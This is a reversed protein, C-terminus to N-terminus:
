SDNEKKGDLKCQFIFREKNNLSNFYPEYSKDEKLLKDHIHNILEKENMKKENILIAEFLYDGLFGGGECSIRDVRNMNKYYYGASSVNIFDHIMKDLGVNLGKTSYEDLLNNFKENVDDSLGYINRLKNIMKKRYTSNRLFQKSKNINKHIKQTEVSVIINELKVNQNFKLIEDCFYDDIEIVLKISEYNNPLKLSNIKSRIDYFKNVMSLVIKDLKETKEKSFNKLQNLHDLLPHNKM